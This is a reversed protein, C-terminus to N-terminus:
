IDFIGQIKATEAKYFNDLVDVYINATVEYSSHGLVVQVYKM